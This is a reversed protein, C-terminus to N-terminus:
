RATVQPIAVDHAVPIERGRLASEGLANKVAHFVESRIRGRRYYQDLQSLVEWSGDPDSKFREQVLLLFEAEDCTGSALADLWAKIASEDAIEPQQVGANGRVPSM